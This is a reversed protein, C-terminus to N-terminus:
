GFLKGIWGSIKDKIKDGDKSILGTLLDIAAGGVAAQWQGGTVDGADTAMEPPLPSIVRPEFLRNPNKAVEDKASAMMDRVIEMTDAHIKILRHFEDMMDVARKRAAALYEENTM